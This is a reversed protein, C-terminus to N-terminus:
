FNKAGSTGGFDTSAIRAIIEIETLLIESAETSEETLVVFGVISHRLCLLVLLLVLDDDYTVV